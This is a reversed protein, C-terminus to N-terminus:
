KMEKELYKEYYYSKEHGPRARRALQKNHYTLVSPLHLFAGRYSLEMSNSVVLSDVEIKKKKLLEKLEKMSSKSPLLLTLKLGSKKAAARIEKIGDLSLPMQPGFTYIIGNKNSEVLNALDGDSFENGNVVRDSKKLYVKKECNKGFKVVLLETPTVLKMENNIKGFYIEVWRGIEKTPSMFKITKKDVFHRTWDSLSNWQVLQNSVEAKCDITDFVEKESKNHISSFCNLALLSIFIILKIM